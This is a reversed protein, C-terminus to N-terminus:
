LYSIIFFTIALFRKVFKYSICLLSVVATVTVTLQFTGYRGCHDTVTLDLTEVGVTLTAKVVVDICHLSLVNDQNVCM